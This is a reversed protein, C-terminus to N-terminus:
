STSDVRLKRRTLLLSSAMHVLPYTTSSSTFFRIGRKRYSYRADILTHCPARAKRIDFCSAKKLDYQLILHSRYLQLPM